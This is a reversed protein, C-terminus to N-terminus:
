PNTFTFYLVNLIIKSFPFLAYLSFCTIFNSKTLNEIWEISPHYNRSLNLIFPLTYIISLFISCPILTASILISLHILSTFIFNSILKYSTPLISTAEIHSFIPSFLNLHCTCSITALILFFLYEVLRELMQFIKEVFNSM